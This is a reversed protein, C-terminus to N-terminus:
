QLTESHRLQIYQDLRQSLSYCHDQPNVPPQDLVNDYKKKWKAAEARAKALAKDAAAQREEAEKKIAEVTRNQLDISATLKKNADVTLKLSSELSSVSARLNEIQGDKREIQGNLYSVRAVHYIGAAVIMVCLGAILYLRLSSFM